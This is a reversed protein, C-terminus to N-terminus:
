AQNPAVHGTIEKGGKKFSIKNQDPQKLGEITLNDPM